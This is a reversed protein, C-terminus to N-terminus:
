AELIVIGYTGRIGPAYNVLLKSLFWSDGEAAAWIVGSVFDAIQIVPETVSDMFRIAPDVRRVLEVKRSPVVTSSLSDFFTTLGDQFRQQEIASGLNDFWVEGASVRKEKLYLAFQGLTAAFVLGVDIVDNGKPTKTLLSPGLREKPVITSIPFTSTNRFLEELAWLAQVRWESPGTSTLPNSLSDQHHGPFFHSWKLEVEDSGCLEHKVRSWARVLPTHDKRFSAFGGVTFTGSGSSPSTTGRDDCSLVADRLGM